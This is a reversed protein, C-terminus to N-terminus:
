DSTHTNSFKQLRTPSIVTPPSFGRQTGQEAQIYSKQLTTPSIVTPPSFSRQTGQEAQIYSKQLTTPSIVIPPSFGQTGDSGQEAQRDISSTIQRVALARMNRSYMPPEPTCARRMIPRVMRTPIGVDPEQSMARRRPAARRGGLRDELGQRITMRAVSKDGGDGDGDDDHLSLPRGKEGAVISREMVVQREFSGKFNPLYKASKGTAPPPGRAAALGPLDGRFLRDPSLGQVVATHTVRFVTDGPRGGDEGAPLAALPTGAVAFYTSGFTSPAMTNLVVPSRVKLSSTYRPQDRRADPLSLRSARDDTVSATALSSLSRGRLKEEEERLTASKSHAQTDPAPRVDTKGDRRDEQADDVPVNVAAPGGARESTHVCVTRTTAGDDQEAPSVTLVGGPPTGGSGARRGEKGDVDARPADASPERAESVRRDVAVIAYTTGSNMEGVGNSTPICVVKHDQLTRVMTPNVMVEIEEDLTIGETDSNWNEFRGPCNEHVFIVFMLMIILMVFRVCYSM